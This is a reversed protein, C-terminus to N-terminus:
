RVEISQNDRTANRATPPRGRLALREKVRRLLEAPRIPKDIYDVVSGRGRGEPFMGLGNPLSTLMIVPVDALREDAWISELIHFGDAGPMIVDLIIVDPLLERAMALGEDGDYAVLVRYAASELVTSTAEVFDPDDDILLVTPVADTGPAVSM